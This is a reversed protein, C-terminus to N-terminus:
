IARRSSENWSERLERRFWTPATVTVATVLLRWALQRLQPTRVIFYAAGVAAAGIAANAVKEATAENM